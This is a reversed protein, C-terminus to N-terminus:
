KDELFRHNVPAFRSRLMKIDEISFTGGTPHFFPWWEPVGYPDNPQRRVDERKCRPCLISDPHYFVTVGPHKTCERYDVMM